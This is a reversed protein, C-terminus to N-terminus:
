GHCKHRIQAEWHAAAAAMKNAQVTNGRSTSIAALGIAVGFKATDTRLTGVPIRATVRKLHDIM